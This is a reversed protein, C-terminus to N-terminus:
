ANNAQNNHENSVHKSIDLGVLELETPLDAFREPSSFGTQQCLYRRTHSEASPTSRPRFREGILYFVTIFIGLAV